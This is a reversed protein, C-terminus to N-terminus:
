GHKRKYLADVVLMVIGVLSCFIGLPLYRVHYEMEVINKGARLPFTYMCEGLLGPTVSTGNLKTSWGRDFPISVFLREGSEANVEFRASGNEITFNDASRERLQCTVKGLLELDLAYFQTKDERFAVDNTPTVSVKCLDDGDKIPVYFVSPSLWCAYATKYAGNVNLIANFERKWPLNGYVAYNGRQMGRLPVTYTFEKKNKRSLKFKLPVYLKVDHGMLESYLGNQYEFPNSTRRSRKGYPAYRFAMPLCYPNKYVKIRGTNKRGLPALELGRIDYDSFIYRVGMLSDAALISTNVINLNGGNKRYGLRELFTRTVDDPTSTYGANSWYGYALAENYNATLGEGRSHRRTTTQAVRYLGGDYARVDAVRKMASASYNTFSKTENQHYNNMQLSASIGIESLSLLVVACYGIGKLAKEGVSMGKRSWMVAALACAILLIFEVTLLTREGANGTQRYNLLLLVGSFFFAVKLVTMGNTKVEDSLYFHASLFILSMEAVYSHRCWYSGVSKLLSFLTYCTGCYLSLVTVALLGVLVARKHQNKYDTVVCALCGLLTFSGCFLSVATKSSKAGLVYNEVLSLPNGIFYPRFLDAFNLEGRNSNRLAAVTPLFLFCSILVGAAMVYVFRLFLRLDERATRHQCSESRLLMFEFLFWVGAFLCNIGGTYWNFCISAAVSVSLLWAKGGRVLKYVGLLILPLMYVGDLWMINSAQAISYQSLAYSVSLFIIVLRQFADKDEPSRFRGNLFVACTISATAVKLSVITDFFTHLDTKDFLPVLFSFPSSLYYSFVGVNTGGLVKSFTYSISNKGALVDKFYAFFDLYQINADMTALSNIGFPAYGKFYYLLWALSLTLVGAFTVEVCARKNKVGVTMDKM